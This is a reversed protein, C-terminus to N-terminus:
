TVRNGPGGVLRYGTRALLVSPDRTAVLNECEQSAYGSGILALVDGDLRFITFGHRALDAFLDGCTYDYRAFHREWSEFHVCETRPLLDEAGALVFREYGEVDVKLLNVRPVDALLADLRVVPVSRGSPRGLLYNQSDDAASSLWATGPAAGLAVPHVRVNAAHNARVNAQLYRAVVPNAEIAHVAGAPGVADAAVLSVLGINAGADVVVDGGRLFRRFFALDVAYARRDRWLYRCMAAPEFRIRVGHTRMVVLRHLGTRLLFTAAMGSVRAGRGAWARAVRARLSTSPAGSPALPTGAASVAGSGRGLM